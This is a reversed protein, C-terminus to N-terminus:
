EEPVVELVFGECEIEQEFNVHLCEGGGGGDDSLM